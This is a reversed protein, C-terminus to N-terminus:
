HAKQDSRAAKRAQSKATEAGTFRRSSGGRIAAPEPWAVLPPCQEIAFYPQGSAYLPTRQNLGEDPCRARGPRSQLVAEIGRSASKFCVGKGRTRPKSRARAPALSTPALGLCWRAVAKDRAYSWGPGTEEHSFLRTFPFERRLEMLVETAEGVRVVLPLGRQALSTRLPALCELLWAV